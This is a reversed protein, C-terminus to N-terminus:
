SFMSLKEEICEALAAAGPVDPLSETIIDPFDPPSGTLTGVILDLPIKVMAVVTTVLELGQVASSWALPDLIMAPTPVGAAPLPAMAPMPPLSSLAEIVEIIQIAQIVAPLTAPVAIQATIEAIETATLDEPNFAFNIYPQIPAMAADFVTLLPQLPPHSCDAM